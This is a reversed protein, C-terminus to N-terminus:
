FRYRLNTYWNRGEEPYGATYYYNRDLANKIGAEFTVGARIPVIAAMDFTAASEGYPEWPATNKTFSTDQLTIGGQYRATVFALIQHPLRVTARARANNKPLGNPLVLASSLTINSPLVSGIVRNLYAYTLDLTLRPIPTSRVTAEFGEHTEKGINVNLSCYYAQQAWTGATINSTNNPCTATWGAPEPLASNFNPDAVQASEIANHLNSHFVEVQLFTNGPLLRSYGLNLTRAMEPQLDPNAVSSGMGYSYLQKLTPFRGRDGFSAFVSDVDTLRYTAAAQPNNNWYHATCGALLTNKPSAACTVPLLATNASNYTEAQLGDIHDASFGVIARLRSTITISDQIGISTTQSRLVKSPIVQPNADLHYIGMESHTDDKFFFSAGILNRALSRNTFETSIGDTHDDYRSVESSSSYMSNEASSDFMNISNRFQDYFVRTKFSSQEGIGTNSLFYYSDKNWYPWQWFNKFTAAPNEGMYLPVGKEGKQNIYSFVYEDQGKPTWGLRGSYKEDRTASSNEQDTLAYPLNHSCLTCGKVAVNNIATYGGAPYQLNGSLPTYDQQLWDVSGQAFFHDMRTGLHLSSLLGDGSAGGILADGEYKKVPERTIMNVSGGLANPGLLSSSFGKAVQIESIDSTLFRDMDIYGDYPVYIPIGDLYLPVQGNSSFGRIWFAKENRNGSIHQIEVGPIYDLAKTANVANNQQIETQSFSNALPSIDPLAAAVDVQTVGLHFPHDPNAALIAQVTTRLASVEDTVQEAKWPKAPAEALKIKADAGPHVKLWNEVQSRIQALAARQAASDGGANELYALDQEWTLPQQVQAHMLTAALLVAVTLSLILKGIDRIRMM